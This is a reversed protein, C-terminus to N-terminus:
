RERFGEHLARYVPKMLYALVTKQGTQIEATLTMGPTLRNMEPDHGAYSRDLHVIGRYYPVGDADAFTTASLSKLRGSVSGYRVFDFTTFKTSVPLGPQIHGIDRVSIQVEAVLEEDVPVVQMLTEGAEVVGGISNVTMGQVLGRVPSKVQLRSVRDQLKEQAEATQALTAAVEGLRSLSEAKLLADQEVIRADTEAVSERLVSIESDIQVLEGKAANMERQTTLLLIRSSLGKDTLSQRMGLEQQLLDINRRSGSARRQLSVIEARQRTGRQELVQQRARHATRLGKLIQAQDNAMAALGDSLAPFMADRDEILARLREAELLLAGRRAAIQKLEAQASAGDLRLLLQGREVLSGDGVLIEAAIGGELHKIAQARGSPIIQGQAIAVEDFRAIASWTVFAIVVLGVILVSLKVLSPTGTEELLISQALYPNAGHRRKGTPRTPEPAPARNRARAPPAPKSTKAM